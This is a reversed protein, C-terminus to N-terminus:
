KATQTNSQGSFTFTIQMYNEEDDCFQAVMQIVMYNSTVEVNQIEANCATYTKNDYTFSGDITSNESITLYSVDNKTTLDLNYLKLGSVKVQQWIFDPLTLDATNGNQGQKAVIQVSQNTFTTEDTNNQQEQDGVYIMATATSGGQYTYTEGQNFIGGIIETVMNVIDSDCSTMSMSLTGMLLMLSTRKLYKKM